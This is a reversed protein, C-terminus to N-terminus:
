KNKQMATSIREMMEIATGTSMPDKEFGIKIQTTADTGKKEFSLVYGLSDSSITVPLDRTDVTKYVGSDGKEFPAKLVIKYDIKARNGNEYVYMGCPDSPSLSVLLRGDFKGKRPNNGGTIDYSFARYQGSVVPQTAYFAEDDVAKEAKGAEKSGGGCSAMFAVCTAAAYFLIKKM